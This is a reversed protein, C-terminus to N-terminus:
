MGHTRRERLMTHEPGDVHPRTLARSRKMDADHELTHTFVHAHGNAPQHVGPSHGGERHHVSSGATPRPQTHRIENGQAEAEAGRCVGRRGAGRGLKRDENAAAAWLQSRPDLGMHGTRGRDQTDLSAAGAESRGPERGKSRLRGRAGGGWGQRRLVAGREGPCVGSAPERAGRDWGQGASRLRRM